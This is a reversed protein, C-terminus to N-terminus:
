VRLPEKRYATREEASKTKCYPSRCWNRWAAAWDIYVVAKARAHDVFREWEEKAQFTTWGMNSKAWSHAETPTFRHPCDNLLVDVPIARSVSPAKAGSTKTHISTNAARPAPTAADPAPPMVNRPPVYHRPRVIYKTGKGAIDQKELVGQEVLRRIIERLGRESLRTKKVLQPLSPWCRGDDNAWDALALMTLTEAQDLQEDDFVAAMLKISM